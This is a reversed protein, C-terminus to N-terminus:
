LSWDIPEKGMQTLLNNITSFPKSGFFGRYSSLPSPHPAELCIHHDSILQKKLQANKGWLVFIIPDKRHSLTKITNDTFTEWGIKQHSLPTSDEVTLLTNLLFVGQTAWGSLDGTLKHIGLDSELEKYINVLSKPLAVGPNVSFSLGMAQGKQHYPDQGLIVVKVDEFPTLHYANFIDDKEPYIMTDRQSLFTELEKFYDKQKENEIFSIWNM